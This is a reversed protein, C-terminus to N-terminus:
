NKNRAAMYVAMYVAYGSINKYMLTKGHFFFMYSTM